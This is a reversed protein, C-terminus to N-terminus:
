LRFRRIKTEPLGYHAILESEAERIVFEVKKADLQYMILKPLLGIFLIVKFVIGANKVRSTKEYNEIAKEYNRWFSLKDNLEIRLKDLNFNLDELEDIETGKIIM